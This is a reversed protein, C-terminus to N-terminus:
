CVSGSNDSLIIVPRLSTPGLYYKWLRRDTWLPFPHRGWHMSPYGDGQSCVGGRVLCGGPGAVGRPGSVGGWVLCGRPGSVGGWSCCAGRSASQLMHNVLPRYADWQFANKNTNLKLYELTKHIIRYKSWKSLQLHKEINTCTSFNCANYNFSNNLIFIMSSNININEVHNKYMYFFSSTLGLYFICFLWIM